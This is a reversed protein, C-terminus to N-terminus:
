LSLIVDDHPDNSTGDDNQGMQSPTPRWGGLNPMVDSLLMRLTMFPRSLEYFDQRGRNM